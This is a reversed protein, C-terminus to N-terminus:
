RGFPVADVIEVKLESGSPAAYSVTDGKKKGAIASGLPSQPSYVALDVSTDFDALERAGFLFTETDSDGVFRVTVSMGPEVIGDDAPTEGVKAKSLMNELQRIRAEAKGQEEKSAHYGTNERLDGEDRAAGIRAALEARNPGRLYDLEERLKEFAEQTLWIVNEDTSQTV